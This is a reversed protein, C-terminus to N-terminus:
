AAGDLHYDTTATSAAVYLPHRPHGEQTTGLCQPRVHRAALLRLVAAARDGIVADAGWAVIVPELPEADASFWWAIARDNDPGIPDPASRLVQPDTSRLGFLNLILLGGAHWARAFGICRRITPDLRFADATSPNLMLFMAMPLDTDWRRTLAYRYRRCRSFTATAQEFLSVEHVDTVLGPIV